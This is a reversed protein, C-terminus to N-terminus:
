GNLKDRLAKAWWDRSLSMLVDRRGDRIMKMEIATKVAHERRSLLWLNDTDYWDEKALLERKVIHDVQIDGDNLITGSVGSIYSDRVRIMNATKRWRLGAYFAMSDKDRVEENYKRQAKRNEHKEKLSGKIGNKYDIMTKDRDAKNQATHTECFKDDKPVLVRCNLYNCRHMRMNM